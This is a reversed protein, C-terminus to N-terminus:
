FLMSCSCSFLVEESSHPIHQSLGSVVVNRGENDRLSLPPSDLLSFLIAVLLFSMSDIMLDRITENYVELYSIKVDYIRDLNEEMRRFLNNMTLVMVGPQANNGIMTHTKGSGTAGYRASLSHQLEAFTMRSAPAISDM